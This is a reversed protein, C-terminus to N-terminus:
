STSSITQTIQLHKHNGHIMHTPSSSQFTGPSTSAKFFSMRYILPATSKCQFTSFGLFENIKTEGSQLLPEIVLLNGLNECVACRNDRITTDDTDFDLGQDIQDMEHSHANVLCRETYLHEWKFLPLVFTTIALRSIATFNQNIQPIYYVAAYLTFLAILVKFCRRLFDKVFVRKIVRVVDDNSKSSLFVELEQDIDTSNNSQTEM